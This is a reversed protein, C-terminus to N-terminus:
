GGFLETELYVRNGAFAIAEYGDYGPVSQAIGPAIFEIEAPKVPSPESGKINREIQERLITFLRGQGPGFREPYQPLLILRDGYWALGSIEADARAAPGKLPIEKVRDAEPTKKVCGAHVALALLLLMPLYRGM